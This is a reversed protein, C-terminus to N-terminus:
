VLSFGEEKLIRAFDKAFYTIIVDAGARKIAYLVEIMLKEWNESNRIMYYEGSVNYAALPVLIREKIKTIVDLYALAPKVMVIDAGEEADKVSELIAIEVNRYDLQYSSRDGAKPASDAAERFPGYFASNFKTSYSMIGVWNFGNEDLVKRISKVQYDMMASPAVFDAGSEAYVLSIRNLIELTKDNDVYGNVIVGCQGTNTYSCVCVDAFIVVEDGFIERIKRIAKPVIGDKEYAWRANEDKRSEVGFLLFNRIGLRLCEEMERILNDISFRYIGKMTKIEEKVNEGEVAFLPYIFNRLDLKVNSTLDILHKNKRLRRLM